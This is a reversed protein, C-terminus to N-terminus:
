CVEEIWAIEAVAREKLDLGDNMEVVELEKEVLISAEFVLLNTDAFHEIHPM